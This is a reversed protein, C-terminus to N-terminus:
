QKDSDSPYSKPKRTNRTASITHGNYQRPELLQPVYGSLQHDGGHLGFAVRNYQPQIILTVAHSHNRKMLEAIADITERDICANMHTFGTNFEFKAKHPNGWEIWLQNEGRYKSVSSFHTSRKWKKSTGKWVAKESDGVAFQEDNEGRMWLITRGSFFRIARVLTASLTM